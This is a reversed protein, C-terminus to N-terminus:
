TVLAEEVQNILWGPASAAASLGVRAYSKMESTVEEPGEVLYAKRGLSEALDVLGKSNASKKDGVVVIIEVQPVLNKIAQQREKTAACISNFIELHPIKRKAAEEIEAFVAPRLTTQAMLFYKRESEIELKEIDQANEVLVFDNVFGILAQIEPHNAHGAIIVFAGQDSHRKVTKQNLLVLPCTADIISVNKSKIRAREQPHIGHARVVLTAGEDPESEGEMVKMGKQALRELERKNHILLGHSYVHDNQSLAREAYDVANQVGMCYGMSAARIVRPPM